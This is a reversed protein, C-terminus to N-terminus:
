MGDHSGELWTSDTLASMMCDIDARAASLADPEARKRCAEALQEAVTLCSARDLSRFAASYYRASGQLLLQNVRVLWTNGCGAIVASHFNRHAEELDAVSANPSLLAQRWHAFAEEVDTLWAASGQKVSLAAAMPQVVVRLDHLERCERASVPAVRAGRQPTWEVIGESALAQLAERLPTPSVSFRQTLDPTLLRGGPPFEGSLIAARLGRM